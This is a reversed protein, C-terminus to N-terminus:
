PGERRPNEPRSESFSRAGFVPPANLTIRLPMASPARDSNLERKLYYFPLGPSLRTGNGRCGSAGGRFNALAGQYLELIATPLGSARSCGSCCALQERTVSAPRLLLPFLRAGGPGGRPWVSGLGHDGPQARPAAPRRRGAQVHANKRPSPHFPVVRSVSRALTTRPQVAPGPTLFGQPGHVLLRRESLRGPAEKRGYNWPLLLWTHTQWPPWRARETAWGSGGQRAPGLGQLALSAGM